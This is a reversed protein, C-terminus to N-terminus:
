EAEGAVALFQRVALVQQGELLEALAQGVLLVM